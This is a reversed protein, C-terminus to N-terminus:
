EMELRRLLEPFMLRRVMRNPNEFRKYPTEHNTRYFKTRDGGNFTESKMGHKTSGQKGSDAYAYNFNLLPQPM